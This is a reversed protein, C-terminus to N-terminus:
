SQEGPYLSERFITAASNTSSTTLNTFEASANKNNLAGGDFAPTATAVNMTLEINSPVYTGATQLTIVSGQSVNITGSTANTLKDPM